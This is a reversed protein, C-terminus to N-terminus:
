KLNLSFVFRFYFWDINATLRGLIKNKNSSPMVFDGFIKTVLFM